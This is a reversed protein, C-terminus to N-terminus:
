TGPLSHGGPPAVDRKMRQRLAHPRKIAGGQDDFEAVLLDLAGRRAHVEVPLWPAGLDAWQRDSLLLEGTLFVQRRDAPDAFSGALAQGCDGPRCLGHAMTADFVLLNGPALLLHVGAHPMVFEVNDVDLALLWFLCRPWHRSVDNHFGAGWSVLYDIRTALSRRYASADNGLVGTLQLAAAIQLALDPVHPATVSLEDPTTIAHGIDAYAEVAVRGHGEAALRERSHADLYPSYLVHVQGYPARADDAHQAEESRVAFCHFPRPVRHRDAAVIRHIPPEHM